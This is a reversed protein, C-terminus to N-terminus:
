AAGAVWRDGACCGSWVDACDLVFDHGAADGACGPASCEWAGDDHRVLTGHCHLVDIECRRCAIM